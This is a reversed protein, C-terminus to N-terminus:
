PAPASVEVVSSDLEDGIDFPFGFLNLFDCFTLVVLDMVDGLGIADLFKEVIKMWELILKKPWNVAFDRLSDVIRKITEEPSNVVSEIEGGIMELVSVGALSIDLLENIADTLVGDARDIIEQVISDVDFTALAVLNPLGLANWVEEFLDILKGLADYLIGLLGENLKRMIYDLVARVKLEASQIGEEAGALFKDIDPLLDFFDDIEDEVQQAIKEFEEKPNAFFKLVDISIGFVTIVFDIPLVADVLQLIKRLVYNHFSQILSKIRKEWEIEPIKLGNFLPDTIDACIEEIIAQVTELVELIEDAADMLTQAAEGRVKMAELLLVTPMNALQIFFNTLEAQTPLITDPCKFQQLQLPLTDSM